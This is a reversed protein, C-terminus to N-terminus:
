PSLPSQKCSIKSDPFKCNEGEPEYQPPPMPPTINSFATTCGEGNVTFQAQPTFDDGVTGSLASVDDRSILVVVEAFGTDPNEKIKVGYKPLVGDKDVYKYYNTSPNVWGSTGQGAWAGPAFNFNLSGVTVDVGFTIPDVNAWNAPFFSVVLRIKGKPAALPVANLSDGTECAQTPVGHLLAALAVFVFGWLRPLRLVTL